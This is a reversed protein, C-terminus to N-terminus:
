CRATSVDALGALSSMAASIVLVNLEPNQNYDNYIPIFLVIYMNFFSFLNNNTIIFEKMIFIM